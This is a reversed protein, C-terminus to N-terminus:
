DLGLDQIFRSSSKITDREVAYGNVLLDCLKNYVEDESISTATSSFAKMTIFSAFEGVTFINSAEEDSIEIDFEEEAWMVIEVTDLGM